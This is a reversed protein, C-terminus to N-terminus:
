HSTKTLLENLQKINENLEELTKLQKEQMRLSYQGFHTTFKLNLYEIAKRAKHTWLYGIIILFPFTAVAMLIMKGYGEMKFLYFVALIGAGLYKFNNVLSLGEQLYFYIRILQNKIGNFYQEKVEKSNLEDYPNTM